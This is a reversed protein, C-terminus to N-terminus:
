TLVDNVSRGRFNLLSLLLTVRIDTELCIVFCARMIGPIWSIVYFKGGTDTFFLNVVGFGKNTMLPFKRHRLILSTKRAYVCISRVTSPGNWHGLESINTTRPAHGELLTHFLMTSSAMISEFFLNPYRHSAKFDRVNHTMSGNITAVFSPLITWLLNQFVGWQYLLSRSWRLEDAQHSGEYVLLMDPAANLFMSYSDLKRM